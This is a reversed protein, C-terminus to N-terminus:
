EVPAEWRARAGAGAAHHGDGSRVRAVAIRRSEHCGGRHVRGERPTPPDRSRDPTALTPQSCDDVQVARTLEASVSTASKSTTRCCLSGAYKRGASYTPSVRG